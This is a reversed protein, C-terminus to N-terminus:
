GSNRVNTRIQYLPDPATKCNRVGCKSAKISEMVKKRKNDSSKNNKMDEEKMKIPTRIRQTYRRGNSFHRKM